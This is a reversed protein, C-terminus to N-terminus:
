GFRFKEVLLVRQGIEIAALRRKIVPELRTRKGILRLAEGGDKNDVLRFPHDAEIAKGRGGHRGRDQWSRDSGTLRGIRDWAQKESLEGRIPGPRASTNSGAQDLVRELAGHSSHLQDASAGQHDM